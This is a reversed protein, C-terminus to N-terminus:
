CEKSYNSVENLVSKSRLQSHYMKCYSFKGQGVFLSCSITCITQQYVNGDTVVLFGQEVRAKVQGSSTKFEGKHANALPIFHEYPIECIDLSKREMWKGSSRQIRGTANSVFSVTVWSVQFICVFTCLFSTGMRRLSTVIYSPGTLLRANEPFGLFM